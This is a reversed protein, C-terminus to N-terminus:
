ITMLTAYLDNKQEEQESAKGVLTDTLQPTHMETDKTELPPMTEPDLKPIEETSQKLEWDKEEKQKQLTSDWDEEWKNLEKEKRSRVM